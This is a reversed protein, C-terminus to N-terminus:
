GELKNRIFLAHGVRKRQYSKGAREDRRIRLLSVRKQDLLVSLHDRLRVDIEELEGLSQLVADRRDGPLTDAQNMSKLASQIKDILKGRSQFGLEMEELDPEDKESMALLERSMAIAQSLPAEIQEAQEM